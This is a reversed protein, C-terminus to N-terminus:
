KKIKSNKTKSNKSKTKVVPKSKLVPAEEKSFYWYGFSLIFVLVIGWLWIEMGAVERNYWPMKKAESNTAGKVGNDVTTKVVEAPAVTDSYGFSMDTTAVKPAFPAALLQVSATSANANLSNDLAILQYYYATGNIVDTDEFSTTVKSATFYIERGKDGPTLSRWIQVGAFDADTPNVWSLKVFGNGPTVVFNAVPSPGTTDSVNILRTNAYAIPAISFASNNYSTADAAQYILTYNIGALNAMATNLDGETWVLVPNAADAWELHTGADEYVLGLEAHVPKVREGFLDNVAANAVPKTTKAPDVLKTGKVFDVSVNGAEDIARYTTQYSYTGDPNKVPVSWKTNLDAKGSAENIYIGSDAVATTLDDSIVPATNDVVVSTTALSQDALKITDMVVFSFVGDAITTNDGVVYTYRYDPSVVSLDPTTAGSALDTVVVSPNTLATSANFEITVVDGKKAWGVNKNSSQVKLTNIVPVALVTGPTPSLPQVVAPSVQIEPQMTGASTDVAAYVGIPAVVWAFMLVATIGAILKKIKTLLSKMKM